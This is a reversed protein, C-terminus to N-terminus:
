QTRVSKTMRALLDGSIKPDNSSGSTFDDLSSPGSDDSGGLKKKTQLRDLRKNDRRKVTNKALKFVQVVSKGTQVGAHLGGALDGVTAADFVSIGSGIVGGVAKLLRRNKQVARTTRRTLGPAVVKGTKRLTRLGARGNQSILDRAVNLFGM